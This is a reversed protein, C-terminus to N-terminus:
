APAHGITQNGLIVALLDHGAHARKAVEHLFSRAGTEVNPIAKMFAVAVNPQPREVSRAAVCAPQEDFLVCFPAIHERCDGAPIRREEISVISYASSRTDGKVPPRRQLLRSIRLSQIFR